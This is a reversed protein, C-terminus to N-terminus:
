VNLKRANATSIKKFSVLRERLEGRPAAHQSAERMQAM